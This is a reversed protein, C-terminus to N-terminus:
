FLYWSRLVQHPRRALFKRMASPHPVNLGALKAIRQPHCLAASWAVAAGWDHGALFAKESVLQDAIAIADSVRETSAYGALRYPTCTAGFSSCCSRSLPTTKTPSPM